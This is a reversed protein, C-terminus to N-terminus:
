LFRKCRLNINSWQCVVAYQTKVEGSDGKTVRLLKICRDAVDGCTELKPVPTLKCLLMLFVETLQERVDVVM